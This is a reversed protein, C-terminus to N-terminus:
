GEGRPAVVFTRSFFNLTPVDEPNVEPKAITGDEFLGQVTFAMLQTTVLSVDVMFSEQYHKTIPLKSLAFAIATAGRVTRQSRYRAWVDERLINHSQRIYIDHSTQDKYRVYGVDKLSMIALTFQSKQEEYAAVLNRMRTVAGGEGDYSEFYEMVFREIMERAGRPGYYGPRLIPEKHLEIEDLDPLTAVPQVPNGDLASCKPFVDHVISLYQTASNVSECIPNGELFLTSVPLGHLKRLQEVSDIQNHSIDLVKVFKAVSTLHAAYDLIKLRNGSLNLATIAGYKEDIRDIVTLMVNNKNLMMHMDQDLFYKDMAFEKLDLAHIEPNYRSDVVKNIADIENRKLKQWPATAREVNFVIRDGSGRHVIRRSITRIADATDSSKIFFELDGRGNYTPLLPKFDEIQHSIQKFLWTQDYKKGEKVRIKNIVEANRAFGSGSDVLQRDRHENRDFRRNLVGGTIRDLFNRGGHGRRPPGGTPPEDDDDYNSRIDPDLAVYRNGRNRSIQKADMRGGGQPRYNRSMVKKTVKLFHAVRGFHPRELVAAFHEFRGELLHDPLRGARDLEFEVLTQLSLKSSELKLYRKMSVRRMWMPKTSSAVSATLKLDSSFPAM